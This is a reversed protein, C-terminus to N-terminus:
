FWNAQENIYFIASKISRFNPSHFNWAFKTIVKRRFYIYRPVFHIRTHTHTHPPPLIRNFRLLFFSFWHSIESACLHRKLVYLIWADKESHIRNSGFHFSISHAYAYYNKRARPSFLFRWFHAIFQFLLLSVSRGSGFANRYSAIGDDDDDFRCEPPGTYAVYIRQLIFMILKLSVTLM